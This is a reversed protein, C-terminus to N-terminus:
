PGYPQQPAPERLGGQSRLPSSFCGLASSQAFAAHRPQEDSALNHEARWSLKATTRQLYIVAGSQIDERRGLDDRWAIVHAGTM